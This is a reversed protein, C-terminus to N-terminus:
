VNVDSPVNVTVPASRVLTSINSIAPPPPPPFVLFVAPPPPDPPPPAPPILSNVPIVTFGPDLLM